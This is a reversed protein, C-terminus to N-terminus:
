WGPAWIYMVQPAPSRLWDPLEVNILNVPAAAGDTQAYINPRYALPRGYQVVKVKADALGAAQKAAALADHLTGIEDILGRAKAEAALYVRGDALTRVEDPSLATRSQGVVDVFRAYMGDILGQFVAKDEPSMERFLSGMDKLPGSKIVNMKLGIKGMTGSVDPTLMIVGISGTVTTPLAYIKDTACALYYGGSAAVDLLAAVVPKGTRQRFTRLESYMLDTATVGGGPSNIRLVVAKVNKDRAAQDLKEAFLSVPNEGAAGLLSSARANQLVGDVDLLVVKQTAWPSERIVVEETLPQRVAVPTVLFSTPGCGALFPLICFASHLICFGTTSVRTRHRHKRM